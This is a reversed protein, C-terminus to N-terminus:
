KAAVDTFSDLLAPFAKHAETQPDPRSDGRQEWVSAFRNPDLRPLPWM